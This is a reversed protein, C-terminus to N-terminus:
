PQPSELPLIEVRSSGRGGSKIRFQGFSRLLLRKQAFDLGEWREQLKDLDHLGQITNMPALSDILAGIVSTQVMQVAQAELASERASLAKHEAMRSALDLDSEAILKREERVKQLALEVAAREKNSQSEMQSKAHAYVQILTWAIAQNEVFQPSITTSCLGNHVNGCWYRGSNSTMTKGCHCLLIGSLLSSRAAKKQVGGPSTVARVALLTDRDLIPVWQGQVDMLPEGHFVPIAANSWRSMLQKLTVRHWTGGASTKVGVKNWKIVLGRVSAGALLDSAAAQILPAEEPHLEDMKNTTWGFPRKHTLPLGAEARQRLESNHRKGKQQVEFISTGGLL